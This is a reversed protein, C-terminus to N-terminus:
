GKKSVTKTKTSSPRISPVKPPLTEVYSRAKAIWSTLEDDKAIGDPEIMLFGAMRRGAGLCPVAFPSTLAEGEAEAGVRAMLGDGTACCLMNGNWLFTVGGFMPKRTWVGKPLVSEIRAALAEVDAARTPNKPAARPTKPRTPRPSRKM